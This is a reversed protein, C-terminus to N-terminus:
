KLITYGSTMIGRIKNLSDYLERIRGANGNVALIELCNDDPLHVHMTSVIIDKFQHQVHNSEHEYEHSAIITISGAKDGELNDWEESAVLLRMAKRIADSRSMKGKTFEDFEELLDEPLSISFRKFTSKEGSM